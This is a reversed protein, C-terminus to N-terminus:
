KKDTFLKITNELLKIHREKEVILEKLHGIEKKCENLSIDGSVNNGSGNVHHGITNTTTDPNIGEDFFTLISVGLAISIEELCGAQIKNERICRHLNQVSMGIESALKTLGGERKECYGKIKLLNM